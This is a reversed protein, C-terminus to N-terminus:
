TQTDPHCEFLVSGTTSPTHSHNRAREQFMLSLLNSAHGNSERSLFVGVTSEVSAGKEEITKVCLCVCVCCVLVSVSGGGVSRCM